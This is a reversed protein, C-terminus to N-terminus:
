ATIELRFTDTVSLNSIDFDGNPRTLMGGALSNDKVRFLQVSAAEIGKNNAADVIKGYLKGNNQGSIRGGPRNGEQAMSLASLLFGTLLLLVQKM